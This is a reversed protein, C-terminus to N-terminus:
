ILFDEQHMLFKTSKKIKLNQRMLKAILKSLNLIKVEETNGINYIEKHKGKKM